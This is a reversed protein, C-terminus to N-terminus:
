APVFSNSRVFHIKTDGTTSANSDYAYVEAYKDLAVGGDPTNQQAITRFPKDNRLAIVSSVEPQGAVAVDIVIEWEIDFEPVGLARDEYVEQKGRELETNSEAFLPDGLKIVPFTSEVKRAVPHQEALNFGVGVSEETGGEAGPGIISYNDTLPQRRTIRAWMDVIRVPTNRRGEVLLKALTLDVDQYGASYLRTHFEEFDAVAGAIAEAASKDASIPGPYVWLEGQLLQNREPVVTTQVPPGSAQADALEDPKFAASLYEAGYTGSVGVVIGGVL